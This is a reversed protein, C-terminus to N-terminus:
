PRCWVAANAMDRMSIEVPRLKVKLEEKVKASSYKAKYEIPKGELLLILLLLRGVSRRRRSCVTTM